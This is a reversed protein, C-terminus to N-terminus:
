EKEELQLQRRFAERAFESKTKYCSEEVSEEILRELRDTLRVTM